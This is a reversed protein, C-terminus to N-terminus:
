RAHLNRSRRGEGGQRPDVECLFTKTAHSRAKGTEAPGDWRGSRQLNRNRLRPLHSPRGAQHPADKGSRWTKCTRYRPPGRRSDVAHRSRYRFSHRPLGCDADMPPSRASRIRVLLLGIVNVSRTGRYWECRIPPRPARRGSAGGSRTARLPLWHVPATCRLKRGNHPETWQPRPPGLPRSCGLAGQATLVQPPVQAETGPWSPRGTPLIRRSRWYLSRLADHRDTPM